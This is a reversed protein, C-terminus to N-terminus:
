RPPVGNEAEGNDSPSATLPACSTAAFAVCQMLFVLDSRLEKRQEVTELRVFVLSRREAVHRTADLLPLAKAAVLYAICFVVPRNDGFVCHILVQVGAHEELSALVAPDHPQVLDYLPSDVACLDLSPMMAANLHELPTHQDACCNVIAAVGHERLWMTAFM